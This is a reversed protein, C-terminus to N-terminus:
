VMREMFPKINRLWACLMLDYGSSYGLAIEMRAKFDGWLPPAPATPERLCARSFGSGVM